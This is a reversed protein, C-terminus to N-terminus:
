QSKRRSPKPRWYFKTVAEGKTLTIVLHDEEDRSEIAEAGIREAEKKAADRTFESAVYGTINDYGGVIAKRNRRTPRITERIIQITM